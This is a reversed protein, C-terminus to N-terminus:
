LFYMFKSLIQTFRDRDDHSSGSANGDPQALPTIAEAPGIAAVMGVAPYTWTTKM